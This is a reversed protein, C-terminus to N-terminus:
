FMIGLETLVDEVYRIMHNRLEPAAFSICECRIRGMGRVLLELHVSDPEVELAMCYPGCRDKHENQVTTLMEPPIPLWFVGDLGAQLDMETFRATIAAVDKEYLQDISYTRM